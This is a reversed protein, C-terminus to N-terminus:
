KKFLFMSFFTGQNIYYNFFETGSLILLKNNVLEFINEDYYSIPNMIEINNNLLNLDKKYKYLNARGFYKKTYIYYEEEIDFFYLSFFSEKVENSMKRLFFNDKKDDNLIDKLDKDIILKYNYFSSETKFINYYLKTNEKYSDLYIINELDNKIIIKNTFDKDNKLLKINKNNSFLIGTFSSKGKIYILAHKNKKIEKEWHNKDNIEHKESFVFIFGENKKIKNNLNIIIYYNNEKNEVSTIKGNEIAKFKMNKNNNKNVNELFTNLNDKSLFIMKNYEHYFGSNDNIYFYINEQNHINLILFNNQTFKNIAFTNNNFYIEEMFYIIKYKQFIYISKDEQYNLKFRYKKDAELKINKVEIDECIKNEEMKCINLINKEEISFFTNKDVVIDFLLPTPKRRLKNTNFNLDLFNTLSINLIKSSDIFIMKSNKEGTKIKLTINTNNKGKEIPINIWEDGKPESFYVESQNFYVRLDIKQKETLKIFIYPTKDNYPTFISYHYSYESTGKKLEIQSFKSLKIPSSYIVRLSIIVYIFNMLM